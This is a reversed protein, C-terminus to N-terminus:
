FSRGKYVNSKEMPLLTGSLSLRNSHFNPTIDVSANNGGYPLSIDVRASIGTGMVNMLVRINNKKDRKVEYNTVKGEVTVGGIGNPGSVPINFAVQVVAEDGNVSVFNTNSTVYATQGYKFVVRDAELTFQKEDIAQEAERFLLSDLKAQMEKKQARTLEKEPEQTQAHGAMAILVLVLLYVMRKM